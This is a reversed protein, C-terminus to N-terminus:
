DEKPRVVLELGLADLIRVASGTLLGRDGTLINSLSSRSMGLSEALQTQTKGSKVLYAKIERKLQENADM